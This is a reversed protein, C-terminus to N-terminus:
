DGVVMAHGLLNGMIQKLENEILIPAINEGGATILLEKMRGTIVLNGEVIKGM